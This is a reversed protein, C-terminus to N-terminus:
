SMSEVHLCGASRRPQPGKVHLMPLMGGFGAKQLKDADALPNNIDFDLGAPVKIRDNFLRSLFERYTLAGNDSGVNKPNPGFKTTSTPLLLPAAGPLKKNFRYVLYLVRLEFVHSPGAALTLQILQAYLLWIFAFPRM